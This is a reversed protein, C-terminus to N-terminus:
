PTPTPTALATVVARLAELNATTIRYTVNPDNAAPEGVAAGGAVKSKTVRDTKISVPHPCPRYPHIVDAREEVLVYLDYTGGPHLCVKDLADDFAQRKTWAVYETKDDTMTGIQLDFKQVFPLTRCSSVVAVIVIVALVVFAFTGSRTKMIGSPKAAHGQILL